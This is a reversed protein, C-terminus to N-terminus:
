GSSIYLEVGLVKKIEEYCVFAIAISPAVKVYNASLGHFLAGVGEHRVVKVFCDVMGKYRVDHAAEKGKDALAAAGQWGSVQLRRRCVDFPYAVTQGIAGAVGGCALGSAVDLEKASRLGYVDVAVIDKLTGYVAFNLGVYPIVGIVSPLWGRYLAKIGEEKIIVRAAHSMSRYQKDGKGDVQVTLRGRVMDLPYTASMAFIGAGAGACLRTLPGLKAEPDTKRSRALIAGELYEYALFKPVIRICNAGNGKFMGRVGETKWIHALGGWVGNYVRTSSGAVQQLIKLRELPAVATRSVGGAVGGAFLSKCVAVVGPGSSGEANSHATFTPVASRHTPSLFAGGVPFSGASSSAGAARTAAQATFTERVADTGRMERALM